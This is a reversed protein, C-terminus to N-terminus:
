KTREKRIYFKSSHEGCKIPAMYIYEKADDISEAVYWVGKTSKDCVLFKYHRKM